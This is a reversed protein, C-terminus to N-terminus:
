PREACKGLRPPAPPTRRLEGPQGVGRELIQLGGRELAELLRAVGLLRDERELTVRDVEGLARLQAPVLQEGM